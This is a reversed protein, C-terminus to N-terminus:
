PKACARLPAVRGLTLELIQLNLAAPEFKHLSQEFLDGKTTAGDKRTRFRITLVVQVLQPETLDGPIM